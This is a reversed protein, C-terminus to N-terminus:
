RETIKQLTTVIDYRLLHKGSKEAIKKNSM